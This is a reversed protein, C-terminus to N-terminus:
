ADLSDIGVIAAAHKARRRRMVNQVKTYSFEDLQSHCGWNDGRGLGRGCGGRCV